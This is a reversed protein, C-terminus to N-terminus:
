NKLMGRPHKKDILQLFQAYKETDLKYKAHSFRKFESWIFKIENSTVPDFVLISSPEFYFAGCYKENAYYPDGSDDGYQPNSFKESDTLKASAIVQNNYQFLVICGPDAKMGKEKFLYKGNERRPLEDLFFDKQVNEISKFKFEFNKDMPLIRISTPKEFNLKM